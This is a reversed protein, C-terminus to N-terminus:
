AGAEAQPFLEPVAEPTLFRGLDGMIEPNDAVRYWAFHYREGQDTGEGTATHIWTEPLSSGDVLFFHRKVDRFIWPTEGVGIKRLIPLPEVGIEERVARELAQEPTEGDLIGGGTIKLPADPDYRRTCLFIQPAGDLHRVIYAGVREFYKSFPDM